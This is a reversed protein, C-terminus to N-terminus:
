DTDYDADSDSQCPAVGTCREPFGCEGCISCSVEIACRPCKPPFQLNNGDIKVKKAGEDFVVIFRKSTEDFGMVVGFKNNMEVTRLGFTRVTVEGDFSQLTSFGLHAAVLAPLELMLLRDMLKDSMMGLRRFDNSMLDLRRSDFTVATLPGQDALRATIQAVGTGANLVAAQVTSLEDLTFQRAKDLTQFSIDKIVKMVLEPFAELEGKLTLVNVCLTKVSSELVLIRADLEPLRELDKLVDSVNGKMALLEAQLLRLDAAAPVAMMSLESKGEVYYHTKQANKHSVEGPPGVVTLESVAVPPAVIAVEKKEKQAPILDPMSECSETESDHAPDHSLMLACDKQGRPLVADGVVVGDVLPSPLPEGILSCQCAVDFFQRSAVYQLGDSTPVALPPSLLVPSPLVAESVVLSADGCLAAQVDDGGVAAPSVKTPLKPWLADLDPGADDFWRAKKPPASELSPAAARLPGGDHKARDGARIVKSAQAFKTDGIIPRAAVAACRAYHERKGVVHELDDHTAVAAVMRRARGELHPAVEIHKVGNRPRIYGLRLAREFRRARADMSWCRVMYSFSDGYLDADGCFISDGYLDADSCLICGTFLLIGIVFAARLGARLRDREGTMCRVHRLCLM